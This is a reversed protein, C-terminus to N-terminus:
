TIDVIAEIENLGDPHFTELKYQWFLEKSRLSKETHASDILIVEWDEIGKHGEKCFHEHFKEQACKKEFDTQKRYKRPELDKEKNQNKPRGKKTEASIEGLMKERVNRQVSKYSNFRGRYQNKTSGVNQIGCVKCNKLYVVKSSNCDLPGVQIKFKEGTKRSSFEDTNKIHPCVECRKGGCKKSGMEVESTNTKPLVARVLINKLSKGNSFGVIPTDSFVKRHEEDGHLICALERLVKSIKSFAPNYEINLSLVSKRPPKGKTLLDNRDFKCARKIQDEVIKHKYGRERLWDYLDECRNEFASDDSCIRNLRLAQSFPIAKKCHFPHCSSPHLFQHTDTPKVYLDTSFVGNKLSVKVDLFNVSDASWEWTFKITKHFNNLKELFEKLKDEGHTWIMFIDDIYRYWAKPKFECTQLFAEELEALFLIAYPPAMKTGIATGRLQRYTKENFEFINNKLVIEALECLSETSVDKSERKELARRMALLGEEHPISPYLGVVDITVMLADNPLDKINKLKCVFDNTDKIFSKVKKSLPQLHHDIFSSIKETHFGVHSVVPRGPVNILRKHIKPLLYFRALRNDDPLLFKINSDTIEEKSKMKNLTKFIIDTLFKSDLSTEEYVEADTLQSNAEKIYDDRDWVVVASGKDAEKIVISTDNRLRELASREERTLNNFSPTFSDAM